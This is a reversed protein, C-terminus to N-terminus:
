TDDNVIFILTVALIITKILDIAQGKLLYRNVLKNKTLIITIYAVIVTIIWLIIITNDHFFTFQVILFRKCRSNYYKRM